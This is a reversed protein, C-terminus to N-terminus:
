ETASIRGRMTCAHNAALRLFKTGAPNHRHHAGKKNKLRSRGTTVSPLFKPDASAAAQMIRPLMFFHNLMSALNKFEM